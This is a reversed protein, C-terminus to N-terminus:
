KGDERNAFQARALQTQMELTKLRHDVSKPFETTLRYGLSPKGELDNAALIAAGLLATQKLFDARNKSKQARPTRLSPASSYVKPLLTAALIWASTRRAIGLAFTTGAIMQIGGIIRTWKVPDDLGSLAPNDPLSGAFRVSLDDVAREVQDVQNEPQMVAGFGEILFISSFLTRGVFRVLTM